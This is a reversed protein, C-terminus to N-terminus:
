AISTCTTNKLKNKRSINLKSPFIHHRPDRESDSCLAGQFWILDSLFQFTTRTYSSGSAWYCRIREIGGVGMSGAM